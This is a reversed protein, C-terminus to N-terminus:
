NCYNLFLVIFFYNLLSSILFATAFFILFQIKLLLLLSFDLIAIAFENKISGFNNQIKSTGTNIEGVTGCLVRINQSLDPKFMWPSCKPMFRRHM